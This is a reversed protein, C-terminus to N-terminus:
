SKLEGKFALVARERASLQRTSATANTLTKMPQPQKPTAPTQVKPQSQGLGLKKKIKDIRGLTNVGQDILYSEVEQAAEEVSLLVGDKNYTETILEVVDDISNTKSVAEYTNPDAKVLNRVDVKIQKVASQYAAQQQDTYTKQTDQNAQKLAKIENRLESITADIRPDRPQANLIQQTLEDYSVGAEALVSLPDQKLRDKPIYGQSYETSKSALEAERAKIAEERAKIAKDQQQAKARLAKEQRALQLFQRTLAPDEETKPKEPAVEPAEPAVSQTDKDVEPQSPKVASLEEVSINNQDQVIQPPPQSNAQPTSQSQGNFAAIAKARFDAPPASKVDAPSSIPQIKM